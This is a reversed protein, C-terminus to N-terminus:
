RRGGPADHAPMVRAKGTLTDVPWWPIALFDHDAEEVRAGDDGQGRLDPVICARRRVSELPVIDFWEGGTMEGGPLQVAAQTAWRLTEMGSELRSGHSRM